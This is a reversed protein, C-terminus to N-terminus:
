TRADLKLGEKREGFQVTSVYNPKHQTPIQPLVQGNWLFYLTRLFILAHALSKKQAHNGLEQSPSALFM